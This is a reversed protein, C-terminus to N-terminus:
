SGTGRRLAVQFGLRTRDLAAMAPRWRGGEEALGALGSLRLHRAAAEDRSGYWAVPRGALGRARDLEDDTWAVKIGLGAM